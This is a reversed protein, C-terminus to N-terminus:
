AALLTVDDRQLWQRLKVFHQHSIHTFRLGVFDQDEYVRRASIWIPAEAEGLSLQLRVRAAAGPSGSPELLRQLRIGGLSINTARCVDTQGGQVKNLMIDCDIRREARSDMVTM